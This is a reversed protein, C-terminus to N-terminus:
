GRNLPLYQGQGGRMTQTETVRPNPVVWRTFIFYFIMGIAITKILWWWLSDNQFFDQVAMNTIEILFCVGAIGFVFYRALHGVDAIRHGFIVFGAPDHRSENFAAKAILWALLALFFLVPFAFNRYTWFIFERRPALQRGFERKSELMESKYEELKGSDPISAWFTRDGASGTRPMTEIRELDPGEATKPPEPRVEQGNVHIALLHGANDDDTYLASSRLLEAYTKRGDSTRPIVGREFTFKIQGKPANHEYRYAGLYAKVRESKQAHAAITLLAFLPILIKYKM